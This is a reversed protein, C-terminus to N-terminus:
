LPTVFVMVSVVSKVSENSVVLLTDSSNSKASDSAKTLCLSYVGPAEDFALQLMVVSFLVPPTSEPAVNTNSGDSFESTNM